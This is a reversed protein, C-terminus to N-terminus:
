STRSRSRGPIRCDATHGTTRAEAFPNLVGDGRDLRIMQKRVDEPLPKFDLLAQLIRFDVM